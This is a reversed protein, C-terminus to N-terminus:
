SVVKNSLWNGIKLSTIIVIRTIIISLMGYLLFEKYTIMLEKKITIIFTVSYPIILFISTITGPLIKRFFVTYTVHQIANVFIAVATIIKLFTTIKNAIFYDTGIILITLVSLLVIAWGFSRKSNNCKPKILAFCNSFKEYFLYEEMNHIMFIIPLLLSLKDIAIM